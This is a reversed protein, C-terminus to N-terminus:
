RRKFAESFFGHQNELIKGGIFYMQISNAYVFAFNDTCFLMKMGGQLTDKEKAAKCHCRAM